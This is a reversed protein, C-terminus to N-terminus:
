ARPVPSTKSWSPLAWSRSLRDAIIRATVDTNGGPAYPVVIRIPRDPYEAAAPGIGALTALAIMWAFVTRM